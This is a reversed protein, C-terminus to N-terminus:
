IGCGREEGEVMEVAGGKRLLAKVSEGNLEAHVDWKKEIRSEREGGVETFFDRNDLAKGFLKWRDSEEEWFCFLARCFVLVCAEVEGKTALLLGAGGGEEAMEFGRWFGPICRPVGEEVVVKILEILLWESGFRLASVEGTGAWCSERNM